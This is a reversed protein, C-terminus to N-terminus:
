GVSGWIPQEHVRVPGVDAARAASRRARRRRPLKNRRCYAHTTLTAADPQLFQMSDYADVRWQRNGVPAMYDIFPIPVSGTLPTFVFGGSVVHKGKPCLAIASARDDEPYPVTNSAVTIRRRSAAECVVGVTIDQDQAGAGGRLFATVTWIRPSTRRSQVVVLTVGNVNNQFQSDSSYGGASARTQPPCKLGFTRGTVTNPTSSAEITRTAAFRVAVTSDV